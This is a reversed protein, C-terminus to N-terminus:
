KKIVPVFSPLGVFVEPSALNDTPNTEPGNSSLLLVLPYRDGVAAADPVKLRVTFQGEALFALDPLNWSVSNADITPTVGSTDSVYVPGTGLNISLTVGTAKAGGQNSIRLNIDVTGGPTTTLLGGLKLIADVDPSFVSYSTNGYGYYSTYIFPYPGQATYFIMPQTLVSGNSNVLAYYLNRRYNSNGDTWTLIAHGDNDAAASVAFDGTVAAPNSLIAPAAVQNYAPDMIAFQIVGDQNYDDYHQWAVLINGNSLQVPDPDYNYEYSGGVSLNTKDKVVNGASDLVAFYIDDDIDREWALMVKNGALTTINPSRYGYGDSGGPADNTFQTMGKVLGGSTDQIAYYIDYVSCYSTCGGTPTGYYWKQWAMVFRSDGTTTLRADYFEPENLGMSSWNIWATNNTLNAPGYILNGGPDLIAFYLNYNSLYTTTYQEIVHYWAIGIRGDPAIAVAPSADYTDYAAGSNDILRTVPRVTQGYANVITYEIEQTYHNCSGDLCRGKNWAYIFKSNPGEAVAPYSGFWYNASMKLTKQGGPQVLSLSMAGDNEDEFIQAFAAPIAAQLHTTKSRAPDLASRFTLSTTDANGTTAAPPAQVKAVVTVSSGQAVPGTDPTANGNSDGLPTSGDAAFLSLSWVGSTQLVDFTDTGLEGLNKVEIRFSAPDGPSTFGGQDVPNLGARATPAPRFIHVGHNSSVPSCFNTIALGDLGTTNEIGSSQCYYGGNMTMAAYQFLIENTTEYLFVEFTYEEPADGCCDSEVRNWEVAFWRNPAQGGTMYRVYGNLRDVPVWHPAIVNSPDSPDPIESQRDYFYYNYANFTLYGHLSIYLTSYTNEYFKFPFGIDVAGSHPNSTSIGANVGGSLDAWGWPLSSNWTYGYEDPGGTAQPSIAPAPQQTRDNEAPMFWRGDTGQTAGNPLRQAGPDHFTSFQKPASSPQEDQALATLPAFILALLALVSLVSAFRRQFM